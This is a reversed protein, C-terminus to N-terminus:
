DNILQINWEIRLNNYHQPIDPEKLVAETAVKITLGEIRAERLVRLVIATLSKIRETDETFQERGKIRIKKDPVHINVNSTGTQPMGHTVSINNVVVDERESNDPREGLYVGGDLEAKLEASGNLAKFLAESTEISQMPM